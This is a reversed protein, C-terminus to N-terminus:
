DRVIRKPVRAPDGAMRETGIRWGQRLASSSKTVTSVCVPISWHWTGCYSAGRTGSSVAARFPSWELSGVSIDSSLHSLSSFIPRDKVIISSKISKLYQIVCRLHSFVRWCRGAVGWSRKGTRWWGSWGIDFILRCLINIWNCLCGLTM